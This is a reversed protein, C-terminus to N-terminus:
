SSGGELIKRTSPDEERWTFLGKCKNEFFSMDIPKTTKTAISFFTVKLLVWSNASVIGEILM